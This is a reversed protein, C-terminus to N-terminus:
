AGPRSLTAPAERHAALTAGLQQTDLLPDGPSDLGQRLKTLLLYTQEPMWPPRRPPPAPAAQRVAQSPEAQVGSEPLLWDQASVKRWAAVEPSGRKKHRGRGDGHIRRSM